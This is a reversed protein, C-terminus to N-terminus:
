RARSTLPTDFSFGTAPELSVAKGVLGGYPGDHTVTLAGSSAYIALTNIAATGRAPITFPQAHGLFGAPAWLLLRGSIAADTTNQLLVVTGQGNVNNFRPASLTTEYVRLRYRDDTGCSSGCSPSSVALHQDAVATTTTNQWRLSLGSGTGTPGATQLVTSGDNAIRQLTLPAAEGAAEDIVVEYSAQPQQLLVYYDRDSARGVPPALDARLVSGPAIETPAAADIGDDDQIHMAVTGGLVTEDGNPSFVVTFSEDPEDATDGRVLISVSAVGGSPTGAPFTVTGALAEFDSGAGATGSATAFALTKDTPAPTGDKTTLTAMVAAPTTGADGEVVSAGALAVTPGDDDVIAGEARADATLAGTVATLHLTFTENPEDQADGVIAVEVVQPGTTGPAFTIVGSAPLFDTGAQASGAATTYAITVTGAAPATLGVPFSALVTGADPEHVHADGVSAAAPFDAAWLEWDTPDQSASFYVRSGLTTLNGPGIGFIGPEVDGLSVTGAETGDSFWLEQGQDVTYASFVVGGAVAALQESTWLLSSAPGPRIDRVMYTGADTGDSRWLETGTEDTIGLFFLVGGSATLSVPSTAIPSSTQVAHTGADTGDSMWLVGGGFFLTGEVDTAYLFADSLPEVLHTGSPTGNTVWLASPSGCAMFARSGARVPGSCPGELLPLTGDATGDTRWIASPFMGAGPDAVFLVQDPLATFSRPRSPPAGPYVDALQFTGATTGDSRWLELAGFFALGERVAINSDLPAPAIERTGAPTGDTRWLGSHNQSYGHFLLADGLRVGGAAGSSTPGPDLELPITSAATGTTTWLEQGIDPRFALLFLRDGLSGVMGRFSSSDARDTALATGAPTGDTRWLEEGNVDDQAVFYASGGFSVHFTAQYFSAYSTTGAATGDSRWLQTTLDVARTFAVGGPITGYTTSYALSDCPGPCIDTLRVTGAATGDTKWLERGFPEDGAVFFAATGAAHISTVDLGTRLAFTGGVTGDSRWVAPDTESTGYGYILLSGWATLNSPHSAADGPGADRVMRTGAATGDSRWVERGHIGDDATFYLVNGIAARDEGFSIGSCSGPCIDAVLHTGAATGDSTWLEEGTAPEERIYFLRNGAATLHDGGAPSVRVTGPGSGDSKWLEWASSPGTAALFFLTGAVNTLAFPDEPSGAILLTGASTGDSRYLGNAQFPDDGFYLVDGVALVSSPSPGFGWVPAPTTSSPVVRYLSYPDQFYVAQPTAVVHDFEFGVAHNETPNIDSVLYPAQARAGLGSALVLAVSWSALRM